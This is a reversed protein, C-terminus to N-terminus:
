RNWYRQRSFVLIAHTGGVGALELEEFYDTDCSNDNGKQFSFVFCFLIWTRHSPSPLSLCVSLSPPPKHMDYYGHKVPKKGGM